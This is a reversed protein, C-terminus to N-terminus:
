YIVKLGFQIVRPNGAGLIRGFNSGANINSNPNNFNARNFLNFAEARFQIRLRGSVPIDKVMAFAVTAAGPGRMSNRGVTGFTGTAATTFAATNFWKWVPDVDAPRTPDGILDATDQAIGSLSRDTGSRITFPLGSRISVISNLKWDNVIKGIVHNLSTLTPIDYVISLNMRHRVDFDAPGLDINPDWSSRPYSGAGEITSSSNDTAKSYV